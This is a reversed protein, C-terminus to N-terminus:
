KSIKDLRGDRIVTVRGDSRRVRSITWDAQLADPDIGRMRLLRENLATMGALREAMTKGAWYVRQEQRAAEFSLKRPAWEDWGGERM